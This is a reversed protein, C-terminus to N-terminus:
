GLEKFQTPQHPDVHEMDLWNAGRGRGAHVGDMKLGWAARWQDGAMAGEGFDLVGRGFERQSFHLAGGQLNVGGGARGFHDIEENAHEDQGEPHHHEDGVQDAADGDRQSHLGDGEAGPSWAGPSSTAAVVVNAAVVNAAAAEADRDEEEALVKRLKRLEMQRQLRLYEKADSDADPMSMLMLLNQDELLAAKRMHAAVMSKTAEAHAFLLGERIKSQRQDEKALKAGGPRGKFIRAAEAAVSGGEASGGGGESGVGVGREMESLDVYNSEEESSPAKRKPTM